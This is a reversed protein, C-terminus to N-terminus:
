QPDGPRDGTHVEAPSVPEGSEYLYGSGDCEDCEVTHCGDRCVFAGEGHCRDCPVQEIDTSM